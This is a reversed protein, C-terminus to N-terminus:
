KSPRGRRESFRVVDPRPPIPGIVEFAIKLLDDMADKHTYNTNGTTIAQQYAYDKLRENDIVRLHYTANKRAQPDYEAPQMSEAAASGKQNKEGDEVVNAAAGAAAISAAFGSNAGLQKTLDPTQKKGM